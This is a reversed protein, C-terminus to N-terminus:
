KVEKGGKDRGVGLVKDLAGIRLEDLALFAAVLKDLTRFFAQINGLRGQYFRRLEAEDSDAAAGVVMELSEDVTRIARDFEGKEREKLIGKVIKWFDTEATYYDKRQGVQIHPQVLGLRELARVNTSAAGKSIGVQEVLEDLCVPEPSLYIAGFIAGMAKSFGWFQSIRSMGQIFHQKASDLSTDM